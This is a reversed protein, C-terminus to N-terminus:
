DVTSNRLPVFVTGLNADTTGVPFGMANLNTFAFPAGTGTIGPRTNELNIRITTNTGGTGKPDYNITFERETSTCTPCDGNELSKLTVVQNPFSVKNMYAPYSSQHLAVSHNPSWNAVQTLNYDGFWSTALLPTILITKQSPAAYWVSTVDPASSTNELPNTGQPNLVSLRRGDKQVLIWRYIIQDNAAMLGAGPFVIGALGSTWTAPPSASASAILAAETEAHTITITARKYESYTPAPVASFASGLVEKVFVESTVGTGRRFTAYFEIKETNDGYLEDVVEFIGQFASNALDNSNFVNSTLNYIRLYGAYTRTTYPLPYLSEDTCSLVVGGMALAFAMLYKKYNM